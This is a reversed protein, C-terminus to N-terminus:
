AYIPQGNPLYGVIRRAGSGSLLNSLTSNIINYQSRTGAAGAEGINTNIDAISNGAMQGANATGSLAGYIQNRQAMDRNFANNYTTDALGQGFQQGAKIAAGSDLNGTAALRNDLAKNGQALNFQYGPDNVLDAPSFSKTLSGYGSSGPDGGVGLLRALEANAGTGTKLFPSLGALSRKQSDILQDEADANAYLGGVGSLLSSLSSSGGATAAGAGAGALSSAGGGAGSLAASKALSGAGAAASGPAISGGGSLLSSLRQGTNAIGSTISGIPNSLFGKVGSVANSFLGSLGGGGSLASALGGGLSAGGYGSLAGMLGGKLGGGGLAGGVGGALAGLFPNGTAFGIAIPAIKKIFGFLSSFFGFMPLGTEPNIQQKDSGAVYMYPDVGAAKFAAEIQGALEETIVNLPIIIEGPTLHAIITDGGQGKSAMDGAAGPMQAGGAAAPDAAGPPMVQQNPNAM